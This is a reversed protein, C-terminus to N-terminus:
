QLLKKRQCLSFDLTEKILQLWDPINEQTEEAARLVTQFDEQKLGKQEQIDHANLVYTCLQSCFKELLFCDQPIHRRTSLTNVLTESSRIAEM